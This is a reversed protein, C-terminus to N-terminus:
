RMLTLRQVLQIGAFTFRALYVGSPLAHGNADAGDWREGFSGAPRAGSVITRARRGSLDFVALEIEGQHPLTIQWRAEGRAPNPSVRVFALGAPGDGVGTTADPTVLAYASINGHVDVAALKYYSGAPGVDDYEPDTVTAIRNAPTPVFGASAGRHLEYHRFDGATSLGWDLQTTGSAYAAVFPAPAPPALNDISYGSDPPSTGLITGNPAVADVVFKEWGTSGAMSDSVTSVLQSYASV